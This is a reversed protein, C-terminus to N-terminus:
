KLTYEFEIEDLVPIGYSGLIPIRQGLQRSQEIGNKHIAAFVFGRKQYFKMADINDNSTMLWLRSYKESKAQDIIREILSSGIGNNPTLSDLSVIECSRDELHYTLLGVIEDNELVMFGALDKGYFIEGKSVIFDNGWHKTLFAGIRDDNEFEHIQIHNKNDMLVNYGLGPLTSLLSDCFLM